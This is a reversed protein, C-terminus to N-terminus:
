NYALVFKNYNYFFSFGTTAAICIGGFLWTSTSVLGISASDNADLKGVISAQIVISSIQALIAPLSLRATLLLQERFPIAQGSQLRSLLDDCRLSRSM